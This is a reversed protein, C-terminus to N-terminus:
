VRENNGGLSELIALKEDVYWNYEIQKTIIKRKEDEINIAENISTNDEIKENLYKNFNEM